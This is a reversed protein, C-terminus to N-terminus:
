AKSIDNKKVRVRKGFCRVLRPSHEAFFSQEFQRSGKIRGIGCSDPRRKQRFDFLMASATRGIVVHRQQGENVISIARAGKM